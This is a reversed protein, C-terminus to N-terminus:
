RRTLPLYKNSFGGQWSTASSPFVYQGKANSYSGGIPDGFPKLVIAM